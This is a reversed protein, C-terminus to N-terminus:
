QEAGKSMRDIIKTYPGNLRYVEYAKSYSDTEYYDWGAFTVLYRKQQEM